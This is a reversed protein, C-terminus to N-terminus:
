GAIKERNSVNNDDRAFFLKTWNGDCAAFTTFVVPNNKGGNPDNKCSDSMYLVKHRFLEATVSNSAYVNPCIISDRSKIGGNVTVDGTIILPGTSVNKSLTTNNNVKLDGDLETNKGRLMGTVTMDATQTTGNLYTAGAVTLPGTITLGSISVNGGQALSLFTQLANTDINDLNSLKELMICRSKLYDLSRKHMFFILMVCFIMFFIFKQDYDM